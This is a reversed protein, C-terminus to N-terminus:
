AVFFFLLLETAANRLETMARGMQTKVTNVSVGLRTAVEAYKLEEFFCLKFVRKRQGPLREVLAYLLKDRRATEMDDQFLLEDALKSSLEVTIERARTLHNLVTNRASRFLFAQINTHVHHQERKDWLNCFMEQVIDEAAPINRTYGNVYAVLGTYYESFVQEFEQRTYLANSEKKM